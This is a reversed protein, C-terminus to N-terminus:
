RKGFGLPITKHIYIDQKSLQQLEVKKLRTKRSLMTGIADDIVKITYFECAWIEGGPHETSELNSCSQRTYM